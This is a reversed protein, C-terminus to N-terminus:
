RSAIPSRRAPRVSGNWSSRWSRTRWPSRPISGSPKRSFRERMAGAATTGRRWGKVYLEYAVLSSTTVDRLPRGAPRDKVDLATRIRATLADVLAFVDPGQESGAAVVRGTEVDEVQVDVRIDSGSKFLSGALVAGAGAHRAM